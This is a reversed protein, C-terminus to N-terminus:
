DGDRVVKPDHRLFSRIARAFSYGAPPNINTQVISGGLMYEVPDEVTLIKIDPKDIEKLASYLTTTKGSGTPGVHLIIGYPKQITEKYLHLHDDSFGLKTIDLIVNSKDLIRMVLDEGYVSPVTSVRLDINISPNYKVFNIRSDQPLRKEDIKMNAMIKYRTILPEVMYKPLILYDTLDGDVRVRVRLSNETPQLHIDSANKRYADEIIQSALAIVPSSTESVDKLEEELSRYIVKEENKNILYILFRRFREKRKM